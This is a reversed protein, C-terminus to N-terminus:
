KGVGALRLNPFKVRSTHEDDQSCHVNSGKGSRLVITLSDRHIPHLLQCQVEKRVDDWQGRQVRQARKPELEEGDSWLHFVGEKELYWHNTACLEENQINGDVKLEM